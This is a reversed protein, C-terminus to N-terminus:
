LGIKKYMRKLRLIEDNDAKIIKKTHDSFRKWENRSDYLRHGWAIPILWHRKQLYTYRNELISAPPFAHYLLTKFKSVSEENRDQQKLFIVSRDRGVKGFVGGELTFELFDEMVQVDISELKIPSKIGFWQEVALLTINAFEEFCLKKLEKKVWKWDISEGFKKVFFAIDLYMRIGAGSSNIHKAIHTLLYIFHFEPVFELVNHLSIESSPTVYDWIRSYYTIYDAKDSVDVEMVETHIEYYETGKTYSYVPEWDIKCEYGLELMLEHCRLRDEKKIVFDIDGFTRLEPVSYYSRLIFGKFLICTIEKQSLQRVLVKMQEARRAYLTLESLCYKRFKLRMKEDILGSNKMYMYSIIGLTSNIDAIRLIEASNSESLKVPVKGQVFSRLISIYDIYEKKM